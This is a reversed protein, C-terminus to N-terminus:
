EDTECVGGKLVADGKVVLEEKVEKKRRNNEGRTIFEVLRVEESM